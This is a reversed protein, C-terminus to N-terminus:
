KANHRWPTIDQLLANQEPQIHKMEKAHTKSGHFIISFYFKWPEVEQWNQYFKPFFYCFKIKFVKMVNKWWSTFQFLKDM